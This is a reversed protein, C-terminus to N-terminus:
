AKLINYCQNRTQGREDMTETVRNCGNALSTKPTTSHEYRNAASCATRRGDSGTPSFEITSMCKAACFQFGFRFSSFWRVASCRFWSTVPDSCQNVGNNFRCVIFRSIVRQQVSFHFHFHHQIVCSPDSLNYCLVQALAYDSLVCPSVYRADLAIFLVNGGDSFRNM